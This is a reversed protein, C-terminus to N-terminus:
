CVRETLIPAAADVCRWMRVGGKVKGWEEKRALGEAATVDVEM